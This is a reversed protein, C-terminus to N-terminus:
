LEITAREGSAEGLGVMARGKSGIGRVIEETASSEAHGYGEILWLEKPENAAEFLAKPQEVTFYADADGHVVLVPRPSIQAIADTPQPPAHEHRKGWGHKAIRTRLGLRAVARGSRTGLLWQVRRMAATDRLYWRSAGSVSVVADAAGPGETVAGGHLLVNSSGMSWGVTVVYRYGLSRAYEVVDHLDDIEAVGFTAHGGSSGHGRFSLSIVAGYERLTDTIRVVDPKLHHGTFGHAVLFVVEFPDGAHRAGYRHGELRVGDRATLSFATM